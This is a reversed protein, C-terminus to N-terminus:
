TYIEYYIQERVFGLGKLATRAAEIM